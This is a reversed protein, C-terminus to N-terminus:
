AREREYKGILEGEAMVHGDMANVADDKSLGAPGLSDVDLAYVHFHYHHAHDIKPPCPGGFGARGFSNVGETGIAQGEALGHTSPPVDYLVWHTFTGSPADPDDCIVAVSKAQGPAGTWEIPPAVNQGDCTYKKPISGNDPFAPSSVRLAMAEEEYRCHLRVCPAHQNPEARANRSHRNSNSGRLCAYLHIVFMIIIELGLHDDAILDFAFLVAVLFVNLGRV